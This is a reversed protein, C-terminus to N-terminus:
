PQAWRGLQTQLSWASAQSRPGEARVRAVSFGPYVVFDARSYPLVQSDRLANWHVAGKRVAKPQAPCLNCNMAGYQGAQPHKVPPLSVSVM